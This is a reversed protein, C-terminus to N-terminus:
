GEKQSWVQLAKEDYWFLIGFRVWSKCIVLYSLIILFLLTVSCLM